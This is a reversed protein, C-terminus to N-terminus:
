ETLFYVPELRLFRKELEDIKEYFKVWLNLMDGFDILTVKATAHSRVEDKADSSFGGSSVFIGIDDHSIAGFFKQIDPRGTANETHKVQVKLRPLQAGLPDKYAVIDIGRDKGPAAKSSIFYGMGKLLAAVMDQFEYPDLKKIHALISDRARERADELTFATLSAVSETAADQEDVTEEVSDTQARAKKWAEYARMSAVRLEESTGYKKLAAIGGETIFWTGERKLMWQAKVARLTMFRIITEFRPVGPQTAYPELEIGAVNLKTRVADFVARPSAGDVM